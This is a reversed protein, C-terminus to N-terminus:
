AANNPAFPGVRRRRTRALAATGLGVGLTTWAAPEPVSGVISGDGITLTAVPPGGPFRINGTGLFAGTAGSLRGTGGTVIFHQVNDIIGSVGSNTLLGTYTGFLTAGSAFSYTFLGDYYPRNPAGVAIPPPGDICHSQSSTFDGFNSTGNAYFPPPGDGITVTLAACRGGPAAPLNSSNLNGSFSQVTASASVSAVAGLAVVMAAVSRM